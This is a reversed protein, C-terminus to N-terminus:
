RNDMALAISGIGSDQDKIFRSRAEIGFRLRHDLFAKRVQHVIPCCKNNGVSQRRNPTRVLDQDDLAPSHNLAPRV